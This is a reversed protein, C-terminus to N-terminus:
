GEGWVAIGYGLGFALGGAVGAATGLAAYGGVCVAVTVPGGAGCIVLGAILGVTTGGAGGLASWNAARSVFDDLPNRGTPDINNIPDGGAYAYRNGNTPDLPADLTDQQTFRGSTPDYWRQGYKIWGTVRDRLGQAFTYPNQYSGLGGSDTTVTEVGYPDFSSALAVYSGSTLLALPNANADYIYLSQMGSSTRLLLPEGTVPDHEIYATGNGGSTGSRTAQEIIPLGNPDTRGYVLDTTANPGAQRTVENQSAGAYTYNYTNSGKVVKTMQDAGNYTITGNTPHSTLNGAGDHVWGTNTAQNAANVTLSTSTTGNSATRRNGNADYTYTHTQTGSSSVTKATLLRGSGDYTYYTASGAIGDKVWQIKSRDSTATTSCTPSTTTTTATVAYCYTLDVVRTNSADGSGTDATVRAVRGSSTYDTHSRAAWTTHTANSQLWTDTRRGKSDVGFLLLKTIGDHLYRMATPVGSDDFEYTTTGRTDTVSTLNSAKDYGYGITGGGATSGRSTLRGLDDYGYTTTGSADTRTGVRGATDYTYTVDPTTVSGGTFATKTVRDLKDYTYTTTVGRGNTSTAMRGFADWTFARSGLSSGTVPTISTLQRTTDYGYTTSNTGNAPSTATAVTGDANYTVKAQAASSDTSTLRNGTGSYTYTSQNGADDTTSSPSYKTAAATNAYAASSTAGTPAKSATLSEGGNAGYTNTTTAAGTGSDITDTLTAFNATYTRSRARGAADTAASVRGDVTLTYTTRPVSTVPVAQDTNPGALLTQRYTPYALRTVSNGPSGAASNAQTISTVRHAADYGFTTTKGAPNTVSTLYHGSYGFTTFRGEADTIKTLDGGTYTFAVSRSLSGNTQSVSLVRGYPDFAYTATRAAASGRSAVVTTPPSGPTATDYSYTTTNADRDKVSTLAGAANFTSVQRSSRETLTWGGGALKVLDARFDGPSTYATTSGSVPVFVGTVGEPGYYTVASDPAAAEALRVGWGTRTSWGYGFPADATAVGALGAAVAASNYSVGVPVDQKVGPLTLDSSVVRLNGTGVDVTADVRDAVQFPLRTANPRLGAGAMPSIAVSQLASMSSCTTADCAQVQWEVVRGVEVATPLTLQARAGSAVAVSTGNVLNWTASGSTRAFFKASVSGGDPDSVVATLTPRQSELRWTAVGSPGGPTAAFVPPATALVM